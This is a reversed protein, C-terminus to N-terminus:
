ITKINLYYKNKKPDIYNDYSLCVQSAFDIAYRVIESWHAQSLCCLSKLTAHKIYLGYIIGASFTDGAGITSIAKIKPAEIHTSFQPTFLWAGDKGCTVLLIASKNYLSIANYAEQPSKAGFLLNFDEDSGKIITSLCINEIIWEKANINGTFHSPRINPDYFVIADNNRAKTLFQVLDDRIESKIAFSSAFLILNDQETKPFTLTTKEPNLGNYFTYNANNNADLFALAIRSTGKYITLSKTNISNSLLFEKTMEGIEDSGCSAVMNVPIGLRGLSVATNLVSGGVKSDIPKGDKFIIDFTTEGLAYIQKM